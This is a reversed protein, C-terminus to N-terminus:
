IRSRKPQTCLGKNDAAGARLLDPVTVFRYGKKQLGELIMPLAQVTRLRDIKEGSSGDHALIIGGPRAKAIVRQAMAQPTPADRSEACVTWLVIHYGQQQAFRCVRLSYMGWPPRLLRPNSRTFRAIIDATKNVEQSLADWTLKYLRQHSYTHNAIVHGERVARHVLVPDLVVEGREVRLELGKGSQELLAAIP